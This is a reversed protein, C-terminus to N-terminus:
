HGPLQRTLPARNPFFYPPTTWTAARWTNLREKLLVNDQDYAEHYNTELPIRESAIRFSGRM